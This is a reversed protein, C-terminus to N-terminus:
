SGIGRVLRGHDHAIDVIGSLQSIEERRIEVQRDRLLLRHEFFEVDRFAHARHLRADGRLELDRLDLLAQLLIHLRLEAIRLALGIQAALDLRDLAFQAFAVGAGVLLDRLQAGPQLFRLRRHVHHRLGLALQLPEVNNGAALGSYETM